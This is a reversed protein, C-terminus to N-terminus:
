GNDISQECNSATPIVHLCVHYKILKYCCIYCFLLLSIDIVNPDIIIVYSFLEEKVSFVEM